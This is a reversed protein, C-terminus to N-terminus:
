EAAFIKVASSVVDEFKYYVQFSGNNGIFPKLPDFYQEQGFGLIHISFGAALIENRLPSLGNINCKGDTLFLLRKDNYFGFPYIYKVAEKFANYFSTGGGVNAIYIDDITLLRYNEKLVTKASNGFFIVIIRNNSNKMQNKIIKNAMQILSQYYNEMSGSVDLIMISYQVSQSCSKIWRTFKKISYNPIVIAPITKIMKTKMDEQVQKYLREEYRM